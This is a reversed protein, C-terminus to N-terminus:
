RTHPKSPLALRPATMVQLEAEIGGLDVAGQRDVELGARAGAQAAREAFPALWVFRGRPQLQRAVSTVVADLLPALDDHRAVRHGLPPNSLVLTLGAVQHARADAVALHVPHAGASTLNAEAIALAGPDRDSGHLAAYPGLLSRECLELGSGVFPDWVVDDDRVGGARALAAAVTPHSAAPVDGKRYGFRVDGLARPVLETFLQGERQWALLEWDPQSPDNLLGVALAHRAMEWVVARHHGGDRWAVRFRVPSPSWAAFIAKARRSTLATTLARAEDGPQVRVPELPFGFSLAVRLAALRVLPGEFTGKLLGPAEITLGRVVGSAEDRLIRDLGRRCRLTVAVLGPSMERLKLRPEVVRTEDGSGEAPRRADARALMVRARDVLRRLEPDDASPSRPQGKAIAGSAAWRDLLERARAGGVKGLGEALSRLFAVPAEPRWRAILMGEVEAGPMKGLALAAQRRTGLDADDLWPGFVDAKVTAGPRLALRGLLRVLRARVRPAMEPAVMRAQVLDVVEPGARLLVRSVHEASEDDGSLRDLLPRLHRQGPTFGPDALLSTLDDM